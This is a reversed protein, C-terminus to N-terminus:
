HFFERGAGVPQPAPHCRLVDYLVEGPDVHRRAALHFKLYVGRLVEEGAVAFEQEDVPRHVGACFGGNQVGVLQGGELPRVEGGGDAPKPLFPVAELLKKIFVGAGFGVIGNEARQGRVLPQAEMEFVDDVVQRLEAEGRDLRMAQFVALLVPRLLGM